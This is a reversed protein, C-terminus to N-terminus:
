VLVTIYKGGYTIYIPIKSIRFNFINKDNLKNSPSVYPRVLVNIQEFVVLSEKNQTYLEFCM